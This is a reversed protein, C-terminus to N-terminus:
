FNWLQCLFAHRARCNMLEKNSWSAVGPICLTTTRENIHFYRTFVVRHVLRVLVTMIGECLHVIHTLTTCLKYILGNTEGAIVHVLDMNPCNCHRAIILNTAEKRHLIMRYVTIM